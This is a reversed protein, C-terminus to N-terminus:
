TMAILKWRKSLCSPWRNRSFKMWCGIHESLKPLVVIHIKVLTVEATHEDSDAIGVCVNADETRALGLTKKKVSSM